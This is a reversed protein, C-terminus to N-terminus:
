SVGDGTISEGDVDDAFFIQRQEEPTLGGVAKCFSSVESVKFQNINDVKKKLGYPTLGMSEAVYKWKIGRSEVVNRLERSNIM